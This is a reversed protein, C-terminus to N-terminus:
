PADAAFPSSILLRQRSRSRDQACRVGHSSSRRRALRLSVVVEDAPATPKSRRRRRSRRVGNGILWAASRASVSSDALLRAHAPEQQHLSSGRHEASAAPETSSIRHRPPKGACPLLPRIKISSRASPKSDGPACRAMTLSCLCCGGEGLVAAFRGESRCQDNNHRRRSRCEDPTFAHGEASCVFEPSLHHAARVCAGARSGTAISVSCASRGRVSSPRAMVLVLVPFSGAGDGHKLCSSPGELQYVPGSLETAPRCWQRSSQKAAIM